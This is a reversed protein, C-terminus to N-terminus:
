MGINEKYCSRKTLQFYLSIGHLMLSPLMTMFIYPFVVCCSLHYCRWVTRFCFRCFLRCRSYLCRVETRLPVFRKSPDKKLHKCIDALLISWSFRHLDIWVAKCDRRHFDSKPSRGLGQLFHLFSKLVLQPNPILPCLIAEITRRFCCSGTCSQCLRSVLDDISGTWSFTFREKEKEHPVERGCQLMRSLRGSIM